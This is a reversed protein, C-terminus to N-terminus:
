ATHPWIILESCVWIRKEHLTFEMHTQQNFQCPPLLELRIFISLLEYGWFLPFGPFIHLTTQGGTASCLFKQQKKKEGTGNQKTRQSDAAGEVHPRRCKSSFPFDAWHPGCINMQLTTQQQHQILHKLQSVWCHNMIEQSNWSIYILMYNCLFM